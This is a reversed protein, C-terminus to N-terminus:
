ALWVLVGLYCIHIKLPKIFNALKPVFISFVTLKMERLFNHLLKLQNYATPLYTLDKSKTGLMARWFLEHRFLEDFVWRMTFVTPGSDIAQDGCNIQRIKGGLYSEKEIVIVEIGACALELACALGGIGGGIVLATSKNM